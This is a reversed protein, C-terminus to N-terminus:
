TGCKGKCNLAPLQVNGSEGNVRHNYLFLKKWRKKCFMFLWCAFSPFGFFGTFEWQWMRSREQQERIQPYNVVRAAGNGIPIGYIGMMNEDYKWSEVLRYTERQNMANKGRDDTMEGRHSKQPKSSAALGLMKINSSGVEPLPPFETLFLGHNGQTTAVWINKSVQQLMKSQIYYRQNIYRYQTTAFWINKMKLGFNPSSEWKVLIKWNPQFWWSTECSKM